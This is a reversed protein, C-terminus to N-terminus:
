CNRSVWVYKRQRQSGYSTAYCVVFRRQIRCHTSRGIHASAHKIHVRKVVTNSHSCHWLLFKISSLHLAVWLDFHNSFRDLGACAIRRCEQIVLCVFTCIQSFFRSRSVWWTINQSIGHNFPKSPCCAMDLAVKRHMLHLWSNPVMQRMKISM